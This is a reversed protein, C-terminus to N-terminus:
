PPDGVKVKPTGVPCGDGSIVYGQEGPESRVVVFTEKAHPAVVAKNRDFWDPPMTITVETDRLNHFVLRYDKKVYVTEVLDGSTPSIPSCLHDIDLDIKKSGFPWFFIGVIAIILVAVLAIVWTASSKM